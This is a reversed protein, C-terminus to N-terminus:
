PEHRRGPLAEGANWQRLRDQIDFQNRQPQRVRFKAETQQARWGSGTWEYGMAEVAEYLNHDAANEYDWEFGLGFALDEAYIRKYGEEISRV